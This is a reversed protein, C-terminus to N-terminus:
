GRAEGLVKVTYEERGVHKLLLSTEIRGAERLTTAIKKWLVWSNVTLIKGDHTEIHYKYHVGPLNDPKGANTLKRIEKIELRPIEEGIRLSLFETQLDHIGIAESRFSSETSGTRTRTNNLEM